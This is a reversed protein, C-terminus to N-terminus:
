CYYVIVLDALKKDDIVTVLIGKSTQDGQSQIIVSQQFSDQSQCRLVFGVRTM